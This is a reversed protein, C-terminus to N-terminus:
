RAGTGKYLRRLGQAVFAYPSARSLLSLPRRFVAVLRSSHADASWGVTARAHLGRLHLRHWIWQHSRQDQSSTLLQWHSPIRLTRGEKEFEFIGVKGSEFRHGLLDHDTLQAPHLPTGRAALYAPAAAAVFHQRRPGIPLAIMDKALSEEYRVGADYGAAIVDIFTNEM